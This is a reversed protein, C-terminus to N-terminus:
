YKELEDYLNFKKSMFNVGELEALGKFKKIKKGKKM